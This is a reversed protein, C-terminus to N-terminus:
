EIRQQDAFDQQAERCRRSGPKFERCVQPRTAYIRCSVRVGPTGRLFSCSGQSNTPTKAPAIEDLLPKLTGTILQRRVQRSM